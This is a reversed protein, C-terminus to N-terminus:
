ATNQRLARSAAQEVRVITRGAGLVAASYRREHRWAVPKGACAAAMGDLLTSPGLRLSIGGGEAM